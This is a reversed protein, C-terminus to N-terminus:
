MEMLLGEYNKVLGQLWKISTDLKLLKKSAKPDRYFPIMWEPEYGPKNKVLLHNFFPSL